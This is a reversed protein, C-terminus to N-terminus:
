RTLPGNSIRLVTMLDEDELRNPGTWWEPQRQKVEDITMLVIEHKGCCGGSCGSSDISTKAAEADELEYWLSIFPVRCYAVVAWYQTLDKGLPPPKPYDHTRDWLVGLGDGRNTARVHQHVFYCAETVSKARVVWRFPPRFIDGYLDCQVCNPVTPGRRNRWHSRPEGNWGEYLLYKRKRRPTRKEATEFRSSRSGYRSRAPSHWRAKM